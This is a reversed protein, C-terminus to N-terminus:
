PPFSPSAILVESQESQIRLATLIDFPSTPARYPPFEPSSLDNEYNYMDHSSDVSYSYADLLDNSPSSVPLKKAIPRGKKIMQTPHSSLKMFSRISAQHSTSLPANPVSIAAVPRKSILPLIAGSRQGERHGSSSTTTISHQISRREKETSSSIAQLQTAARVRELFGDFFSALPKLSKKVTIEPMLGQPYDDDELAESTSRSLSLSVAPIAPSDDLAHTCHLPIEHHDSCPAKPTFRPGSRHGLSMSSTVKRGNQPAALPSRVPAKASTPTTQDRLRPLTVSPVFSLPPPTTTRLGTASPYNTMAPRDPRFKASYAEEADELRIFLLPPCRSTAHKITTKMKPKSKSSTSEGQLLSRGSLKWKNLPQHKPTQAFSRDANRTFSATRFSVGKRPDSTTWARVARPKKRAPNKPKMPSFLLPTRASLEDNELRAPSYTRNEANDTRRRKLRNSARLTEYEDDVPNSPSVSPSSSEIIRRKRRGYRKPHIRRLFSEVPLQVPDSTHTPPTSFEM